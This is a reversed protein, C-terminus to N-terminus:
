RVALGDRGAAGTAGEGERDRAACQWWSQREVWRRAHEGACRGGGAGEVEGDRRGVGGAAAGAATGVRQGDGRREAKTPLRRDGVVRRAVAVRADAVDAAAVVRVHDDARVVGFDNVAAVAIVM